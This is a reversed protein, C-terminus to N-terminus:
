IIICDIFFVSGFNIVMDYRDENTVTLTNKFSLILNSDIQIWEFAALMWLIILSTSFEGKGRNM